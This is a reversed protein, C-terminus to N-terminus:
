KYLNVVNFQPNKGRRQGITSSLGGSTQPEENLDEKKQEDKVEYIYYKCIREIDSADIGLEELSDRFYRDLYDEMNTRGVRQVTKYYVNSYLTDFDKQSLEYKSMLGKYNLM